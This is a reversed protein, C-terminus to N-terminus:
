IHPIYSNWNVNDYSKDPLDRMAMFALVILAIRALFYIYVLYGFVGRLTKLLHRLLQNKSDEIFDYLINGWMSVLMPVPLGTACISCIRWALREQHTPFGFNWAGVQVGCFIVSAIAGM